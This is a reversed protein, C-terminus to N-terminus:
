KRLEALVAAVLRDRVDDRDYYGTAIRKLATRVRTLRVPPPATAVPIAARRTTRTRPRRATTM